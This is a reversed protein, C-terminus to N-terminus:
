NKVYDEGFLIPSKVYVYVPAKLSDKLHKVPDAHFAEKYDLNVENQQKIYANMCAYFQKDHISQRAATTIGFTLSHMTDLWKDREVWIEAEQEALPCILKGARTLNYIQDYLKSVRDIKPQDLKGIKHKWQTM